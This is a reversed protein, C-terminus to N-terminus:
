SPDWSDQAGTPPDQKLDQAPTQDHFLLHPALEFRRFIVGL